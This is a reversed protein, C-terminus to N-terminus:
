PIIELYEETNDVVKDYESDYESNGAVRDYEPATSSIEDYLVNAGAGTGTTQQLDTLTSPVTTTANGNLDIPDYVSEDM